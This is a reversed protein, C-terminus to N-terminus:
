RLGGLEGNRNPSIINREIWIIVMDSEQPQIIMPNTEVGDVVLHNIRFKEPPGAEPHIRDGGRDRSFWLIVGIAVILGAATIEWRGFPRHLPKGLEKERKAQKIKEKIATNFEPNSAFDSEVNLFNRAQKQTILRVSCRPCGHVHRRILFDQFQPVPVARVLIEVFRCLFM